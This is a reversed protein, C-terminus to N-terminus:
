KEGGLIKIDSNRAVQCLGKDLSLLPAEEHIACVIFYADYAYIQHKQAIAMVPLLPV